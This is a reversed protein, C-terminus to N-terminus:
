KACFSDTRALLLDASWLAGGITLIAAILGSQIGDRADQAM